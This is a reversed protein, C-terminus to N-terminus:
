FNSQEYWICTKYGIRTIFVEMTKKNGFSVISLNLTKEKEIEDQSARM